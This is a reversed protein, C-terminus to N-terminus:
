TELKLHAHLVKNRIFIVMRASHYHSDNMCSSHMLKEKSIQCHHPEFPGYRAVVVAVAWIAFVSPLREKRHEIIFIAFICM